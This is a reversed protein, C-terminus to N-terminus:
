WKGLPRQFTEYFPTEVLPGRAAPEQDLPWTVPLLVAYVTSGFLTSAIGVPRLAILDFAAAFVRACLNQEPEPPAVAHAPTAGLALVLAIWLWPRSRRTTRKAM